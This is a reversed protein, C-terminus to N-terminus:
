LPWILPLLALALLTLVATLGLGVPLFDRFRYNGAGMVLVNVPHGLPTLFAMSAALTVGMVMSRPETGLSQAAQIAVPVVVTAIVAGNMVQVALVTFFFMGALVAIPGAPGIARIIADAALTAAGTKSIATGLPLMGAVLFISKWEVIRYAADMTLVGALIMALAGGLMIEGVAWSRWASLALTTLLILAALPAKDPVSVDKQREVNLLILDSNRALVDLRSRPGQLLLADGFELMLDSLGSRIPRGDRWIALVVMGYKDRFSDSRLTQGILASRPALIAEVVAITASQLEENERDRLPLMDVTAKLADLGPEDGRGELLLVDGPRLKLDPHPALTMQGEREVSVVNMGYQERLRSLQLTKDVVTSQKTLRVRFLREDLRYTGILDNEPQTLGDDRVPLMRRGWFALYLVGTLALLGGLPLFDLVGYGPQGHDRLLTSAIINTTTFLTAMGGLITSFGLPMLLRSPNIRLKRAAGIVAPMLVAAAAINNMVLSLTAGALMAALALRWEQVGALRALVEGVRDTIGTVKLSEALIYISAITIVASRSFGSFTEQPTLVGSIGLGVAVLLAILDARMRGTLLLVVAIILVGVTIILPENM